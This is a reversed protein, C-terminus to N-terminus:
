ATFSSHGAIAIPPSVSRRSGRSSIRPVMSRSAKVGVWGPCRSAWSRAREAISFASSARRWRMRSLWTETPAILHSTMMMRAASMWSVMAISCTSLRAAVSIVINKNPVATAALMSSM